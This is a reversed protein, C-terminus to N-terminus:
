KNPHDPFVQTPQQQEAQLRRQEKREHYRQRARERRTEMLKLYNPDGQEKRQQMRRKHQAYVKEWNAKKYARNHELQKKYREKWALDDVRDLWNGPHV